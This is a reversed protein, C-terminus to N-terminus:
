PQFVGELDNLGALLTVGGYDGRFPIGPHWMWTGTSYAVPQVLVDQFQHM